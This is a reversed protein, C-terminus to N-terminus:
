RIAVEELAVHVPQLSLLLELGLFGHLLARHVKMMDLALNLVFYTYVQKRQSLAVRSSKFNLIAGRGKHCLNLDTIM